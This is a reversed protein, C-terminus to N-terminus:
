FLTSRLETVLSGAGLSRTVGVGGGGGVGGLM